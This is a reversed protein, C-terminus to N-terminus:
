ATLDTLPEPPAPQKKKKQRAAPPAQRKGKRAGPALHPQPKATSKAAAKAEQAAERAIAKAAQLSKKAMKARTSAKIKDFRKPGMKQRAYAEIEEPTKFLAQYEYDGQTFDCAGANYVRCILPREAYNTCLNDASLNKCVNTIAIFWDGNVDIHITVGDHILFWRVNEFEEYSTPKDIEFCFYRCCRAGCSQCTQTM